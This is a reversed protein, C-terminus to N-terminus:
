QRFVTASGIWGLRPALWNWLSNLAGVVFLKMLGESTVFVTKVCSSRADTTNTEHSFNIKRIMIRQVLEILHQRVRGRGYLVFAAVRGVLNGSRRKVCRLISVEGCADNFSQAVM